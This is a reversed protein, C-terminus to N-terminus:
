LPEGEQMEIHGSSYTKGDITLIVESTNYYGGFTKAVSKLIMAEYQAGANMETVFATNLDLEVQGAGNLALRNIRTNDSFVKGTGSPLNGPLGKYAAALRDGTVDNTMFSIEQDVGYYKGDNINPYYFRVQEKQPLNVEIEKLTSSIEEGGTQYISKVLGIDKTYYDLSTGFEHDTRVLICVYSGYPTKLLASTSEITRKSGDSLTWTNGPALPEQLLIESPGQTKDLFNERTYTEGESYVREMRSDTLAIVRALVTGGNNVRQQVRNEATYPHIVNYSAFENGQGEFVFRVNNKIPLYERLEGGSAEPPDILNLVGDKSRLLIRGEVLVDSLTVSGNGLGEGLILDGKITRGSLSIGPTRVMVNGTLEGPVPGSPSLYSSILNDMVKAFEARTIFKKPSLQGGAGAVYGNAVLSSVGDRAWPSITLQDGFSYLAQDPEGYLKLGRALVVFAEERTIFRDPYLRDGSGVFTKMAVAKAMEDAYWSSVPVDTYASLGAKEAAGFARNIITAMEARTLNDGPRILNGDGMLLGNEVARELAETSWDQPMDSFDSGYAVPSAVLVLVMTLMMWLGTRKGKVVM